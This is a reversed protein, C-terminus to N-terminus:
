PTGRVRGGGIPAVALFKVFDRVWRGNARIFAALFIAGVIM